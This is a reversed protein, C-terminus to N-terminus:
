LGSWPVHGRGNRLAPLALSPPRQPRQPDMRPPILPRAPCGCYDVEDGGGRGELVAWAESWAVGAGRGRRQAGGEVTVHCLSPAHILGDRCLRPHPGLQPLLLRHRRTHTGCTTFIPVPSMTLLLLRRFHFPSFVSLASWAGPNIEALCGLVEASFAEKQGEAAKIGRWVEVVRLLQDGTIDLSIDHWHGSRKVDLLLSWERDTPIPADTQFDRLGGGGGGGGNSTEHTSPAPTPEQAPAAASPISALSFDTEVRQPARFYNMDGPRPQQQQVPNTQSRNHPHPLAQAESHGSQFTAASGASHFSQGQGQRSVSASRRGCNQALYQAHVLPSVDITNMRPSSFALSDLTSPLSLVDPAAAPSAGPPVSGNVSYSIGSGPYSVGPYSVSPGAASALTPAVSAARRGARYPHLLNELRPAALLLHRNSPTVDEFYAQIHIREGVPNDSLMALVDDDDDLAVRQYTEREIYCLRLVRTALSLVIAPIKATIVALLADHTEPEDGARFFFIKVVNEFELRVTRMEPM